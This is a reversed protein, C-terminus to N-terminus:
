IDDEGVPHEPSGDFHAVLLRDANGRIFTARDGLEILREITQGPMPGAAVDGGVLILEVGHRDVERLVADLAPLNGHIDYIAAVRTANRMADDLSM